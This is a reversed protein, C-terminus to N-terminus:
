EGLRKSILDQPRINFLDHIRLFIEASLLPPMKGNEIKNLSGIGIGLLKAMHKKSIGYHKRLWTINHLMNEVHQKCAPEDTKRRAEIDMQKKEKIFTELDTYLIM